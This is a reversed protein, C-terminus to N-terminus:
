GAHGRCLWGWHLSGPQVPKVLGQEAQALSTFTGPCSPSPPHKGWGPTEGTRVWAAFRRRGKLEQWLGWSRWLEGSRRAVGLQPWVRRGSGPPPPNAFKGCGGRPVLPSLTPIPSLGRPERRGRSLAATPDAGPVTRPASSGSDATSLVGGGTGYHGVWCRLASVGAEGERTMAAASGGGRYEGRLAGCARRAESWHPPAPPVAQSTLPTRYGSFNLPEPATVM